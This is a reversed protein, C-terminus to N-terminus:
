KIDVNYRVAARPRENYGGTALIKPVAELLGKCMGARKKDDVESKAWEKQMDKVLMMAGALYKMGREMELSSCNGEKIGTNLHTLFTELVTLAKDIKAKDPSKGVLDLFKGTADRLKQYEALQKVFDKQENQLLMYAAKAQGEILPLGKICDKHLLKNCKGLTEKVAVEVMRIAGSLRVMNERTAEREFKAKAVEMDKMAKTLPEKVLTLPKLKKWYALTLSM